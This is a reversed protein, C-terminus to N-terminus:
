HSVHNTEEKFEDRSVCESSAESSCSSSTQKLDTVWHELTTLSVLSLLKVDLHSCLVQSTIPSLIEVSLGADRHLLVCIKAHCM